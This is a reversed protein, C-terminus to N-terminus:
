LFNFYKYVGLFFVNSIVGFSLIIKRYKKSKPAALLYLFQYNIAISALVIWLLNLGFFSYFVLGINLLFIKYLSINKHLFIRVLFILMFFLLFDVTAFSM